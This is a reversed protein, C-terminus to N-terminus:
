RSTGKRYAPLDSIRRRIRDVEARFRKDTPSGYDRAFQEATLGERLGKLEPLYDAVRFGKALKDLALDGKKLRAALTVGSFDALLDIFSFGSGGMSDQQEKLLGASEALAAGVLETLACSVVFHQALDRRGRMTPEGLVALRQKREEDSEVKRCLASTLPNSRLIRSDDIAIGLAVLFAPAQQEAPLKRAAAAAVRVYHATLEDGTRRFPARAGKDTKLPLRANEQAAKVMAAVVKRAGEATGKGLIEPVAAQAQPLVLGLLWALGVIKVRM